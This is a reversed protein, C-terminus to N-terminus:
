IKEVILVEKGVEKLEVEKEENIYWDCEIMECGRESM